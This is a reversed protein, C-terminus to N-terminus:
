ILILHDPLENRTGQAPCHQHLLAGCQEICRLFGQETQGAKVAVVFADVIAQWKEQPVHQSIGRDAIIEVYREAESVFILVGSEGETHHLNNDLFQRRALNSAHWHALKKPVLLRRLPHWQFLLALVTFTISQTFIIHQLDLWMPLMLLVAPSVLAVLAAWTFGIYRYDDAQRALVTVLEANTHREVAAIADSIKEQAQKNILM